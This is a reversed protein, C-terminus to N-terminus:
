FEERLSVKDIKRTSTKPLEDVFEVRRPIKYDTLRERCHAEIDDGSVSEDAVAVATVTEGLRDHPTGIVGVEVVGDLEYIVDEIERPYVNEGGTIIMDDIRDEVFLHGDADMRAIDGSRLWRKHEGDATEGSGGQQGPPVAREVFAEENKKPM